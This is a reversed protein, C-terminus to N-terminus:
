APGTDFGKALDPEVQLPLVPTMQNQTAVMGERLNNNRIVLFEVFACQSGDDPLRLDTYVLKCPQQSVTDM